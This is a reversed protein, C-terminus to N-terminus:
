ISCAFGVKTLIVLNPFIYSAQDHIGYFLMLCAGIASVGYCIFLASKLGFVSFIVSGYLFGIFEATSLGLASPYVLEYTNVLFQLLFNNFTTVTWAIAFIYFNNRVKRDKMFTSVEVDETNPEGENLWSNRQDSM